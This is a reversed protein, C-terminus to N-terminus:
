RMSGAVSIAGGAVPGHAIYGIRYDGATSNGPHIFRLTNGAVTGNWLDIGASREIPIGDTVPPHITGAAM